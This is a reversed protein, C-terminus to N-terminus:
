LLVGEKYKWIYNKYKSKKNKCCLIIYKALYGHETASKISEFEKIINGLLDYQIIPKIKAIKQKQKTEASTTTGKRPHIYGNEYLEKHTESM